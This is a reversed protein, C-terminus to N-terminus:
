SFPCVIAEEDDFTSLFSFSAGVILGYISPCKTIQSGPTNLSSRSCVTLSIKNWFNDVKRVKICPSGNRIVGSLPLFSPAPSQFPFLSEELLSHSVPTESGPANSNSWKSGTSSIKNWFHEVKRVKISPAGM